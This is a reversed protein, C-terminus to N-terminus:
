CQATGICKPISSLRVNQIIGDIGNQQGAAKGKNKKGNDKGNNKKGNNKKGNNKKGRNKGNNNKKGNNKGAGATGNTAAGNTPNVLTSSDGRTLDCQMRPRPVTYYLRATSKSELLRVRARAQLTPRARAVTRARVRRARARRARAVTRARARRARVPQTLSLPAAMSDTVSSRSTM